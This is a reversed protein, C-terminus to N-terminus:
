RSASSCSSTSVSIFPKLLAGGGGNVQADVFGPALVGGELDSVPTSRDLEAPPVIKEIRGAEMVVALDDRFAEGDFLRAAKLAFRTM